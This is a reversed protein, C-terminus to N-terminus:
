VLTVPGFCNSKATVDSPGGLDLFGWGRWIWPNKGTPELFAGARPLLATPQAAEVDMRLADGAAHPMRAEEGLICSDGGQNRVDQTEAKWLETACDSGM